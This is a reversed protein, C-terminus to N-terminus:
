AIQFGLKGKRVKEHNLANRKGLIYRSFLFLLGLTLVFCGITISSIKLGLQDTLLGTFCLTFVGIFSQCASKFSMLTARQKSSFNQHWYDSIFISHIATLIYMPFVFILLWISDVSGIGIFSISAGIIYTLIVLQINVKKLWQHAQWSVISSIGLGIAIIIGLTSYDSLYQSIIPARLITSHARITTTLLGIFIIMALLEKKHRLCCYSRLLLMKAQLYYSYSKANNDKMKQRTVTETMTLSFLALAILMAGYIYFVYQHNVSYIFGGVIGACAASVKFLATSQGLYKRFEGERKLKKLSDYLLSDDAGSELSIGIGGILAALIFVSYTYGAAILLYESGMLACGIAMSNKRGILDAFMGAPVEFVVLIALSATEILSLQSFSIDASLYFLNCLPGLTTLGSIVVYIQYKFINQQYAAKNNM